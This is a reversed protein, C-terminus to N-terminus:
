FLSYRNRHRDDDDDDDYTHAREVVFLHEWRLAITVYVITGNHINYSYCLVCACVFSFIGFLLLLAFYEVANMMININLIYMMFIYSSRIDIYKYTKIIWHRRFVYICILKANDNSSFFHDFHVIYIWTHVIPVSSRGGGWLYWIDLQEFSPSSKDWDDMGPAYIKLLVAFVSDLLINIINDIM